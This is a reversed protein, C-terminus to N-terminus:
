DAGRLSRMLDALDRKMLGTRGAVDELMYARDTLDSISLRPGSDLSSALRDIKKAAPLGDRPGLRGAKQWERRLQEM